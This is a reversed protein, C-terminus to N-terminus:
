PNTPWTLQSITQAEGCSRILNVPQVSGWPSSSYPNTWNAARILSVNIENYFCVNGLHCSCIQLKMKSSIADKETIVSKFKCLLLCINLKAIVVFYNIFQTMDNNVTTFAGDLPPLCFHLVVCLSSLSKKGWITVLLLFCNSMFISPRINNDRVSRKKNM